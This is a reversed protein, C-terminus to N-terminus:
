RCLSAAGPRAFVTLTARWAAALRRHWAIASARGAFDGGMLGIVPSSRGAQTRSNTHQGLGVGPLAVARDGAGQLDDALAPRQQDQTIREEAHAPEVVEVRVQSRFLTTYPFLTSRPPRRIM